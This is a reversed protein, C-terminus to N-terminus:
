YSTYGSRYWAMETRAWKPGHALYLAWKPGLSACKPRHGTRDEGVETRVIGVEGLFKPGFHAHVSIPQYRLPYLANIIIYYESV